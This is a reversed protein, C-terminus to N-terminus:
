WDSCFATLFINKQHHQPSTCPRRSNACASAPAFASDPRCLSRCHSLPLAPALALPLPSLAVSLRPDTCDLLFRTGFLLLPASLRKNANTTHITSVKEHDARRYQRPCANLTGNNEYLSKREEGGRGGPTDGDGNAPPPIPPSFLSVNTKLNQLWTLTYTHRSLETRHKGSPAALKLCHATSRRRRRPREHSTHSCGAYKSSLM